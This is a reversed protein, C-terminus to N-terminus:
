GRGGEEAEAEREMCECVWGAWMIAEDQGLAANQLDFQQNEKEKQTNGSSSTLEASSFIDM